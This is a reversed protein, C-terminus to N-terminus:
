NAGRPNKPAPPKTTGSKGPAPPKSAGLKEQSSAGKKGARRAELDIVRTEVGKPLNLVFRDAPIAPNIKLDKFEYETVDGDGEVYKLRVPLFRESDIWITMGKLRKAIRAYKPTLELRYPASGKGPTLAVTFYDLLTQMAGSAGLYKFVQNSYRGVKLLDARNLDRYWTTMESGRIVVSIPNPERYEWRVQDPAAYSFVGTSEQPAVLLESEQHQVFRAELTKLSKQEMKVRDLLAQLRQFGDLGPARPDPKAPAAAHAPAVAAPLALVTLSLVQTVLKALRTM